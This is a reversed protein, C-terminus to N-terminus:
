IIACGGEVRYPPEAPDGALYRSPESIDGPAAIGPLASLAAAARRGIGTEFMGGIWVRKGAAMARRLYDISPGIGGLKAPKVAIVSLEPCALASEFDAPTVLSEDLCVPTAMTRQLEALDALREDCSAGPEHRGPEEIWAAGLRDLAILEARDEVSLADFGQNADLTVMLRPCADRVARVAEVSGSRPAVKMKLRTYGAHVAARAAEAAQAPPLVGVSAGAPVRLEGAGAGGDGLPAGDFADRVLKWLPCGSIRTFLDWYAPEVAGRALPHEGAGPLGALFASVDRPDAFPIGALAPAAVERIWAIDDDLVEPLYWDTPFAVCEGRGTRGAHDTVTVLAGDRATLVTRATRLPHRFALSFRDVAISAAQLRREDLRELARRDVKGIGTRPLSEMAYVRDPLMLPSLAHAARMRVDSAFRAAGARALVAAGPRDPEIFAVPRRGWREDPRGLVCADGVDLLGMLARRVEEPYINEGGSVFMDSVRERVRIALVGDRGREVRAVDGTLLEGADTRPTKANLYGPTAGPGAVALTGYGQADPELVRARYGPLLSLAGDFAGDVPANAIQSATETMGYSAYVRAGAARARELTRPNPASGGLLLCRYGLLARMRAPSGEAADLLDRLTKDVVSVHTAGLAAADDLLRGADFRRYLAFPDGALVSRVVMQLGGVHFLPLAAQWLAPAAGRLRANSAAASGCLNGWTLPVAKPTGTTGSTFMIAATARSGVPPEPWVGAGDLSEALPTGEFAREDDVMARVRPAGDAAALADLRLAREADSMRTNLAVLSFGGAAAALVLDIFAPCAPLAVAVADGAAVGRDRLAALARATRAAQEARDIWSLRPAGAGDNDAYAYFPADPRADLARRFAGLLANDHVIM